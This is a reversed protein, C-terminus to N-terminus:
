GPTNAKSKPTFSGSNEHMGALRNVEIKYDRGMGGHDFVTKLRIKGSPGVLLQARNLGM